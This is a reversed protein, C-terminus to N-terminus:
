EPERPPRCRVEVVVGEEDSSAGVLRDCSSCEALTTPHWGHQPCDVLGFRDVVRRRVREEGEPM